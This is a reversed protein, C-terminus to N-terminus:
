YGVENWTTSTASLNKGAPGRLPLHREKVARTVLKHADAVQRHTIREAASGSGHNQLRGVLDADGHLLPTLVDM